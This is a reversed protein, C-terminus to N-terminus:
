KEKFDEMPSVHINFIQRPFNMGLAVNRVARRDLPKTLATNWGNRMTPCVPTMVLQFIAECAQKSTSLLYNSLAYVNYYHDDQVVEATLEKEPRLCACNGVGSVNCKTYQYIRLYLTVFKESSVQLKPPVLTM